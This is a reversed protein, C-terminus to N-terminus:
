ESSYLELHLITSEKLCRPWISLMIVIGYCVWLDGAAAAAATVVNEIIKYYFSFSTKFHITLCLNELQLKCFM